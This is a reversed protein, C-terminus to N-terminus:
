KICAHYSLPYPLRDHNIPHQAVVGIQYARSNKHSDSRENLLELLSWDTGEAGSVSIPALVDVCISV